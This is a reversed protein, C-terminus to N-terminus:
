ICTEQSSSLLLLFSVSVDFHGRIHARESPAPHLSRACIAGRNGVHIEMLMGSSSSCAGETSGERVAALPTSVHTEVCVGSVRSKTGIPCGSAIWRAFPVADARAVEKGQGVGVAAEGCGEGCAVEEEGGHGGAVRRGATGGANEEEGAAAQTANSAAAEEVKGEGDGWAVKGGGGGCKVPTIQKRALALRKELYQVAESKEAAQEEDSQPGPGKAGAGASRSEQEREGKQQSPAPSCTGDAASGEGAVVEEDLCNGPTPTNFLGRRSNAPQSAGLSANADSNNGDVNEKDAKVLAGAAAVFKDAVFKDKDAAGKAGPASAPTAM